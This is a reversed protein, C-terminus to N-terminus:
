LDCLDCVFMHAFLLMTEVWEDELSRNGGAPTREAGGSNKASVINCHGVAGEGGELGGAAAQGRGQGVHGGLGGGPDGAGGGRQSGAGGDGAERCRRGSMSGVEHVCRGQIWSTAGFHMEPKQQQTKHEELSLKKERRAPKFPNVRNGCKENEREISKLGLDLNKWM